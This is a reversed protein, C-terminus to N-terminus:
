GSIAEGDGGDDGEEAQRAALWSRPLLEAVRDAPLDSAIGVL